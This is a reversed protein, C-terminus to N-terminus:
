CSNWSQKRFAAIQQLCIVCCKCFTVDRAKRTGFQSKKTLLAAFPLINCACGEEKEKQHFIITSHNHVKYGRQAFSAKKIKQIIQKCCNHIDTLNMFLMCIFLHSAQLGQIHCLCRQSKATNSQCHTKVNDKFFKGLNIQHVKHQLTMNELTGKLLSCLYFRLFTYNVLSSPYASFLKLRRFWCCQLRGLKPITFKTCCQYIHM